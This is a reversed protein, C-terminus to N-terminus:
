YENVYEDKDTLGLEERRQANWEEESQRFIESIEEMNVGIDKIHKRLLALTKNKEISM